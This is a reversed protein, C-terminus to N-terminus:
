AVIEKGFGPPSMHVGGTCGGYVGQSMPLACRAPAPARRPASREPVVRGPWRGLCGGVAGGSPSKRGVKPGPSDEAVLRTM